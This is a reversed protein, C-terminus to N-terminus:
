RKWVDDAIPVGSDNISKRHFGSYIRQHGSFKFDQQRLYM